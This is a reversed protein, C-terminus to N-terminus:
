SRLFVRRFVSYGRWRAWSLRGRRCARFCSGFPGPILIEPNMLKTLDRPSLKRQLERGQSNEMSNPLDSLPTNDPPKPNLIKSKCNRTVQDSLVGKKREKRLMGELMAVEQPFSDADADCVVFCHNYYTAHNSGSGTGIGLWSEFSDADADCVVFCGHHSLDISDSEVLRINQVGFIASISHM